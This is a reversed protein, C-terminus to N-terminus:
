AKGFVLSCNTGGFGFSNSVVYRLSKERATHPVLDLGLEAIEPDTEDLNITPPVRGDRLALASIVAELGGAAGLLHGTMSKTSSVWPRGLATHIARCEQLDGFPTSTGHANVYDVQERSIRASSLALEIARRAGDGNPAPKTLHYADSTAGSGCLEALIPAGRKMAAEREELLLIGAGEAIVFGDRGADFPRSAKEPEDNRRSLARMATFGGVGIPTVGAEAGGAIAADIEGARILRLADAIAHAGSACASTHTYSPGKFGFRMSVQGPALNALMAPMFYPSIKGPGRELLTQHTQEISHIGCLGVGILTAVRERQEESPEFGAASVAMSSAALALHILRDGEKLRRREIFKEAEFGTCEGAIRSPFAAADFATIPGIGSQGNLLASWTSDADLGTPSVCGVATIVVRRMM